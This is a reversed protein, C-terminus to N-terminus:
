LCVSLYVCVFLCLCVCVCVCVCVCSSMGANWERGVPLVHTSEYQEASKYPFPVRCISPPSSSLFFSFLFLSLSVYMSLTLRALRFVYVLLRTFSHLLTEVLRPVQYKLSKKATRQSIIVEDLHGDKRRKRKELEKKAQLQVLRKRKKATMKRPKV